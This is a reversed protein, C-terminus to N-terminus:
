SPENSIRFVVNKLERLVRFPQQSAESTGVNERLTPCECRRWMEGVVLASIKNCLGWLSRTNGWMLGPHGRPSASSFHMLSVSIKSVNGRTNKKWLKADVFVTTFSLSFETKVAFLILMDLPLMGVPAM